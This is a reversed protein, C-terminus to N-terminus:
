ELASMGPLVPGTIGVATGPLRDPRQVAVAGASWLAQRRQPILEDFVGGTALAEAQATSVGVRHTIDAISRYRGHTEREQVLRTALPEGVTRVMALGLRVAQEPAGEAAPELGAHVASANIDPGRVTVGHRRADAILSQPSYFGMPQARLLAACFAAPYYHKFWASYYVLS